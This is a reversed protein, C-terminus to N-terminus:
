GFIKNYIEPAFKQIYGQIFIVIVIVPLVWKVYFRIAKNMPFKFGKGTNIEEMFKEQGWGYRHNCFLIFAM